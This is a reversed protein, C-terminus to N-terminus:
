RDDWLSDLLARFEPSSLAANGSSNAAFVALLTEDLAFRENVALEIRQLAQATDGVALYAQAWRTNSVGGQAAREEFDAFVRRADDFYGALAYNQAPRTM